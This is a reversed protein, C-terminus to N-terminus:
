GIKKTKNKLWWGLGFAPGFAWPDTAFKFKEGRIILFAHNVYEVFINEKFQNKLILCFNNM